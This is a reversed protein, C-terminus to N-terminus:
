LSRPLQEASRLVAVHETKWAAIQNEFSRMRPYAIPFFGDSPRHSGARWVIATVAPLERQRCAQTVESLAAHLRSSRPHTPIKESVAEALERYTISATGTRLKRVLHRYILQAMPTIETATETM